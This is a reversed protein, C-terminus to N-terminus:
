EFKWVYGSCPQQRGLKRGCRGNLCRCIRRYSLGFKKWLIIRYKTANVSKVAWIRILSNIEFKITEIEFIIKVIQNNPPWPWKAFLKFFNVLFVSLQFIRCKIIWICLHCFEDNFIRGDMFLFKKPQIWSVSKNM